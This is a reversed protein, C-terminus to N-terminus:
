QLGMLNCRYAMGYKTTGSEARQDAMEPNGEIDVVLFLVYGGLRIVDKELRQLSVQEDKDTASIVGLQVCQDQPPPTDVVKIATCGALLISLSFLLRRNM